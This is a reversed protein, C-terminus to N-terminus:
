LAGPLPGPWSFGCPASAWRIAHGGGRLVRWVAGPGPTAPPSPGAVGSAASM